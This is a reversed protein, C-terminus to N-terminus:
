IASLDPESELIEILNNTLDLTSLYIQDIFTCQSITKIQNNNLNNLGFYIQLLVFTVVFEQCKIGAFWSGFCIKSSFPLLM